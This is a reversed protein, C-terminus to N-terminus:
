GSFAPLFLCFHTLHTLRPLPLLARQLNTPQPPARVKYMPNSYPAISGEPRIPRPAQKYTYASKEEMKLRYTAFFLPPQHSAVVLVGLLLSGRSACRDGEALTVAATVCVQSTPAHTSHFAALAQTKEIRTARRGCLVISREGERRQRMIVAWVERKGLKEGEAAVGKGWRKSSM